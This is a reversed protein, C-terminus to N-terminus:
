IWKMIQQHIFYGIPLLALGIVFSIWFGLNWKEPFFFPVFFLWSVPVAIIISKAYQSTISLDQHQMYSFCIALISVLPLATIFGAMEPKKGSLWSAFVIVAVAVSVKLIFFMKKDM